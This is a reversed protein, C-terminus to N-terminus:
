GHIANLVAALKGPASIMAMHGTDLDIVEPRLLAISRQQLEEVYCQDQTLHVYTRPIERRYGSLDVTESLLAASDDALRDLTSATTAEDMDNCLMAAAGERTQQYVGGVISQEVLDRVGPDIQDLVRSGDPPVVASVLVVHRIRGPVLDLVRPVTVGAFSHGVLVVDRLDKAEVDERVAEACDALTVTGLEVGARTGRGPLDVALAEASLHPILEDWSSAGFGAGHILVFPM